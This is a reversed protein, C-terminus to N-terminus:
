KLDIIENVVKLTQLASHGDSNIVAQEELHRRIADMVFYQYRDFETKIFRSRDQLVKLKKLNGAQQTLKYEIKGNGYFLVGRTGILIMENMAFFESRTSQFMIDIGKFSLLFDPEWDEYGLADYCRGRRIKEIGCVAGLLFILLDILHAGNNKLGKGYWVTGKYIDGIIGDAILRRLKITGPEFRRIYNVILAIDNKKAAALMAEAQTVREAMPKEILIALPSYSVTQNFIDVHTQTPTAISVIDPGLKDMMEHLCRFVPRNYKKKFRERRQRSCDVGAVLDFSEHLQYGSAHTIALFGDSCHYDYEQGIKGLGIVAASYTKRM